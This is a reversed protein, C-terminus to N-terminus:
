NALGHRILRNIFGPGNEPKLYHLYAKVAFMCPDMLYYLESIEHENDFAEVDRYNQFIGERTTQSLMALQTIAAIYESATFTRVGSAFHELAAVHALEHGVYSHWLARSMTVHFAPRELSATLAADYSLLSIERSRSDYQGIAHNSANGKFRDILKITVSGNIKLGISELFPLTKRAAYCIDEQDANTKAVVVIKSDACLVESAAVSLPKAACLAVILLSGFHM